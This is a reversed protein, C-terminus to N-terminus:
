YMQVPPLSRIYIMNIHWARKLRVFLEVADSKILAVVTKQTKKKQETLQKNRLIASLCQSM